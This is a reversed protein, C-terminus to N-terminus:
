NLVVKNKMSVDFEKGLAPINRRESPLMTASSIETKVSLKGELIQKAKVKTGRSNSLINNENQLVDNQSERNSHV